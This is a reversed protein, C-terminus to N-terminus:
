CGGMGWGRDAMSDRAMAGELVDKRHVAGAWAGCQCGGACWSEKLGAVCGVHLEWEGTGVARQCSSVWGFAVGGIVHGRIGWSALLCVPYAHSGARGGIWLHDM